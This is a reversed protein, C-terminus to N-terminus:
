IKWYVGNPLRRLYGNFKEKVKGTNLNRVIVNEHYEPDEYWESFYLDEGNCFLLSETKGIAIKKNEPWIIELVGKNADRCLMIPSTKLMLNYCDEVIELPFVKILDLRKEEPFYCNIHILKECFNVSLFFLKDNDWVPSDIYLNERLEFPSHVLGDPFHILHCNMGSFKGGSKIIEEAEYLDCFIDKSEKCYYWDSTGEIQEPYCETVGEIKIINM